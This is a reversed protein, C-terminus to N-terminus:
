KHGHAPEGKPKLSLNKEDYVGIVRFAGERLTLNFNDSLYAFKRQVLFQILISRLESTTKDEFGRTWKSSDEERMQNIIQDIRQFPIDISRKFKGLVAKIDLEAKVRGCFSLVFKHMMNKDSPFLNERIQNEHKVLLIANDFREVIYHTNNEVHDEIIRGYNKIYLTEDEPLEDLYLIPEMFLKRFVSHRRDIGDRATKTLHLRIDDLSKWQRVDFPFSRLFYPLYATKQLLVDHEDNSAFDDIDKDVVDVLRMKAVYKLVRILSLRNRYGPGVEM